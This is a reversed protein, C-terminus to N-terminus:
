ISLLNKIFLKLYKKLFFAALFFFLASFLDFVKKFFQFKLYQKPYLLQWIFISYRLVPQLVGNTRNQIYINGDDKIEFFTSENENLILNYITRPM